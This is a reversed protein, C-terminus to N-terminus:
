LPPNERHTLAGLVGFVPRANLTPMMSPLPMTSTASFRSDRPSGTRTRFGMKQQDQRSVSVLLRILACLTRIAWKSCPGPHPSYPVSGSRIPPITNPLSEIYNKRLQRGGKWPLAKAGDWLPYRNEPYGCAHFVTHPLATCVCTGNACM